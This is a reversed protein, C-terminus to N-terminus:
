DPILQDHRGHVVRTPAAIRDLGRLLRTTGRGEDAGSAGARFRIRSASLSARPSRSQPSRAAASVTASGCRRGRLKKTNIWLRWRLFALLDREPRRAHPGGAHTAGLVLSRVCEPHRLALQQAVWGASRSATCTCGNSARRMWSRCPMMPRRRPPSAHFLARWRGVGRALVPVTRWWAGGSLGLGMILLVSPGIRQAGLAPPAALATGLTANLLDTLLHSGARTASGYGEIWVHGLGRLLGDELSPM